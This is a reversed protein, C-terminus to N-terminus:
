AQARTANATKVAPNETACLSADDATQMTRSRQVASLEVIGWDSNTVPQADARHFQLDDLTVLQWSHRLWYKLRGSFGGCLRGLQL